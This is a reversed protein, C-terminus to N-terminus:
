RKGPPSGGAEAERERFNNWPAIRVPGDKRRTLKTNLKREFYAELAEDSEHDLYEDRFSELARLNSAAYMLGILFYQGTYGRLRRRTPDGLSEKSGDKLFANKGEITGRDAHYLDAWEPSGYHPTQFNKIGAEIPFSVSSKNACIPLIGGTNEDVAADGYIPVLDDDPKASPKVGGCANAVPCYATAGPGRAPCMMPVRGKADPKEKARMKYLLRRRILDRYESGTIEHRRYRATAEILDEPMNPCYFAGEVMIAGAYQGQKAGLQNDKYDMVLDYGLERRMPIQYKEVDTGPGYARDGTARGTKYGRAKIDRYVVLASEAVEASPVTLAIGLVLLPHPPTSNPDNATMTVVSADFGFVSKRAKTHDSTYDNKGTRLHWGGDFELAGRRSAAKAEKNSWPAGNKGYVGVVTGDVATDGQWLDFIEAPIEKVTADILRNIFWELRVQKRSDGHKERAAKILEIEELTPFKRRNGSRAPKPDIPDIIRQTAHYLPWYWDAKKKRRNRPDWLGLYQKSENSLRVACLRAMDDVLQPSHEASLLLYLILATRTSVIRPKGSAKRGGRDEWYWEDSQEVLGSRDIIGAIYEIHRQPIRSINGTIPEAPLSSSRLIERLATRQNKARAKV